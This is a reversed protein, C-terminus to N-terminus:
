KMRLEEVTPELIVVDETPRNVDQPQFDKWMLYRLRIRAGPDSYGYKDVIPLADEVLVRRMKAVVEENLVLDGGDNVVIHNYEEVRGNGIHRFKDNFYYGNARRYLSIPERGPAIYDLDYRTIRHNPALGEYMGFFSFPWDERGGGTQQFIAFSFFLVFVLSLAKEKLSLTNVRGLM